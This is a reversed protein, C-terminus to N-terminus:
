PCLVTGKEGIMERESSQRYAPGFVTDPAGRASGLPIAVPGRARRRDVPRVPDHV